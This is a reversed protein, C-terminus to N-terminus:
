RTIKLFEDMDLEGSGDSDLRRFLDSLQVATLMQPKKSKKSVPAPIKNDVEAAKSNTLEAERVKDSPPNSM